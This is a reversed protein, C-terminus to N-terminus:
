DPEYYTNVDDSSWVNKASKVEEPSVNIGKTGYEKILLRGHAPIAGQREWLKSVQDDENRRM